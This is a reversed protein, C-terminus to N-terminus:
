DCYLSVLCTGTRAIVTFEEAVWMERERLARPLGNAYQLITVELSWLDVSATYKSRLCVEPAAYRHIGCVTKLDSKDNTLGIDALKVSLRSRSEVLINELKLDRHAVSRPHM